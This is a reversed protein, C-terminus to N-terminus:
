KADGVFRVMDRKLSENVPKDGFWIAWLSSALEADNIPPMPKGASVTYLGMGPMWTLAITQGDKVKGDTFYGLFRDLDKSFQPSREAAPATKDFGEQFAGRIKGGSVDRVFHMVIRKAFDGQILASYPDPGLDAQADAYAVGEYVKFVLKKRMGSGLATLRVSNGAAKIVVEKPIQIKAGKGQFTGGSATVYLVQPTPSAKPQADAVAGLGIVSAVALM